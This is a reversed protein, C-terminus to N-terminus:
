SKSSLILVCKFLNYPPCINLWVMDNCISPPRSSLTLQHSYLTSLFCSQYYSYSLSSFWWAILGIGVCNAGTFYCCFFMSYFLLFLLMKFMLVSFFHIGQCPHPFAELQYMIFKGHPLVFGRTFMKREEKNRKIPNNM